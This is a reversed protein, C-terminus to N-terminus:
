VGEVRTPITEKGRCPPAKEQGEAKSVTRPTGTSDKVRKAVISRKEQRDGRGYSLSWKEERGRRPLGM